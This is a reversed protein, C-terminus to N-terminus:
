SPARQAGRSCAYVCAAFCFLTAAALETIALPFAVADPALFWIAAYLLGAVTFTMAALRRMATARELQAESRFAVPPGKPIFNAYIALGLGILIQMGRSPTDPGLVHLHQGFKVAVAAALLGAGLALGNTLSKALM